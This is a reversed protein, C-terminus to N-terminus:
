PTSRIICQNDTVNYLRYRLGLLKSAREAVVAGSLGAGVVILNYKDALGNMGRFEERGVQHREEEVKEEDAVKGARLREGQGSQAENIV